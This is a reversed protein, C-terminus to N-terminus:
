SKEVAGNFAEEHADCLELLKQVVKEMTMSRSGKVLVIAGSFGREVVSVAADEHTAVHVHTTDGPDSVNCFMKEALEGLTVVLAPRFKMLFLGVERHLREADKGLEKMDGLVAVFRRGYKQAMFAVTEVAKKMSGPNANYTDDVVITGDKLRNINMRHLAPKWLRLKESSARLNIGFHIGVAAAALANLVYHDGWVPLTIEEHQDGFRVPFTTGSLELRVSSRGGPVWVDADNEMGFSISPVTLNLEARSLRPDDRNVIAIGDPPLAKWLLTKEHFIGEESGFGELHAPQINTIVGVDPRAVRLLESMEGPHNIGLELVAANCRDPMELISLPVGIENNWNGPNKWVDFKSGLVSAIMEKTSTKGNSGTVGVVPGSFKKRKYLALHALARRTDDVRVVYAGSVGPGVDREVIVVRAGKAVADNVFDHGDFREGKLAVFVSGPKMTRTDTSIFDFVEPGSLGELRSIVEGGTAEVIDVLKWGM